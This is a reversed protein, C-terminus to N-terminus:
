IYKSMVASKLHIVGALSQLRLVLTSSCPPMLIRTNNKLPSPLVTVSYNVLWVIELMQPEKLRFALDM